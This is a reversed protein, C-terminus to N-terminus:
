FLTGNQNSLQPKIWHMECRPAYHYPHGEEKKGGVVLLPTDYAAIKDELFRQTFYAERGCKGEGNEQTCIATKTTHLHFLGMLDSATRGDEFEWPEGRFSHFLTAIIVRIDRDQLYRVADIIDGGFFTAEDIGVVETPNGKWNYVLDLATDMKISPFKFGDHTSIETESYRNDATPSYVVVSKGAINLRRVRAILEGTKGAFMCGYIAESVKMIYKSFIDM